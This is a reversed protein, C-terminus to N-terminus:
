AKTGGLNADLLVGDLLHILADPFSQGNGIEVHKIETRKDFFRYFEYRDEFVEVAISFSSLWSFSITPWYGPGVDHAVPYRSESFKMLAKANRITRSAFDTNESCVRDFETGVDSWDVLPRM